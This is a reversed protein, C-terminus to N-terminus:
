KEVTIELVTDSDGIHDAFQFTGPTTFTYTFTASEGEAIDETEAQTGDDNTLPEEDADLPEVMVEHPETGNNTVVFAVTTGVTYTTQEADIRDDDVSVAITADVATNFTSGASNGDLPDVLGGAVYARVVTRAGSPTLLAIGGYLSGAQSRLGVAVSGDPLAVANIEGCALIGSLKGSRTVVLTYREAQLSDLSADVTSEGFAPLARVGKDDPRSLKEMTYVPDGKVDFCTGSYIALSLSLDEAAAPRAALPAALAIASVLCGAALARRISPM